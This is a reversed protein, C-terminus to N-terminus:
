QLDDTVFNKWRYAGYIAYACRAHNYISDINSQSRNWEDTWLSLMTNTGVRFDVFQSPDPAPMIMEIEVSEPSMWQVWRFGAGYNNMMDMSDTGLEGVHLHYVKDAPAAADAYYFTRHILYGTVRKQWGGMGLYMPTMDNANKKDTLKAFMSISMPAIWYGPVQTSMALNPENLVAESADRATGGNDFIQPLNRYQKEDDSLGANTNYSANPPGDPGWPSTSKGDDWRGLAAPELGHWALDKNFLSPIAEPMHAPNDRATRPTEWLAASRFSQIDMAAKKMEMENLDYVGRIQSEPNPPVYDDDLVQRTTIGTARMLNFGSIVMDSEYHYWLARTEVPEGTEVTSGSPPAGRYPRGVAAETEHTLKIDDGMPGRELTAKSALIQMTPSAWALGDCLVRGLAGNLDNAMASNHVKGIVSM